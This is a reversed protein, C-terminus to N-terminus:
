FVERKGWLWKGDVKKSSYGGEAKAKKLTSYSIGAKKANEEIELAPIEDHKAFQKALWEGADLRERQPRGHKPNLHEDLNVVDTSVKAMLQGESLRFELQPPDVKALNAKLAVIHRLEQDDADRFIMFAARCKGLWGSTSGGARYIAGMTQNKNLHGIILLAFGLRAAMDILPTLLSRVEDAANANIGGSFDAIPDVVVLRVNGIRIIDNELRDIGGDKKSLNLHIPQESDYINFNKPNGGLMDFRPRITDHRNDEVSLYVTNGPDGVNSGDIWRTGRSLRAATDLAIWTKACGPDGSILTAAGLPIFGEWLWTVERPEVESLNITLPGANPDMIEPTIKKEVWKMIDDIEHESKPGPACLTKNIRDVAGRTAAMSGTAKYTKIAIDKLNEHRDGEPIISDGPTGDAPKEDKTQFYEAIKEPVPALDFGNVWQYKKGTVHISPPAVLYKGEAKFELHDAKREKSEMPNTGALYYHHWGGDRGTKVTLTDGLRWGKVVKMAEHGDVDLAVIGSIQGTRIAVNALPWKKWWAMIQKEDISADTLGHETLPHKGPSKCAKGKSCSCVGDVPWYLPVVHWGKAIYSLAATLIENEM